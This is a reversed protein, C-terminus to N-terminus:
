DSASSAARRDADAATKYAGIMIYLRPDLAQADRITINWTDGLFNFWPRSMEVVVRGALDEISFKTTLWDLKKSTALKTGNADLITYVTYHKFLSQFVEEKITGLKADRCDFVDVQVGWSFLAQRATALLQGSGDTYKFTRTLSLLQSRVEGLRQGGGSLDFTYGWSFARQKLTLAGPLTPAAACTPPESSPPPKTGAPPSTAPPTSPAPAPRSATTGPSPAAGSPRDAPSSPGANSSPDAPTASGCEALPADAADCPDPEGCAALGLAALGCLLARLPRTGRALGWSRGSTSHRPSAPPTM